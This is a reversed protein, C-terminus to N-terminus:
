LSLEAYMEPCHSLEVSNCLHNYLEGSIFNSSGPFHEKYILVITYLFDVVVKHM